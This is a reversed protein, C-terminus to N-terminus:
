NPIRGDSQHLVLILDVLKCITTSDVVLCTEEHKLINVRVSPKNLNVYVVDCVVKEMLNPTLSQLKYEYM